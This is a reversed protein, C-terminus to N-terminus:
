SHIAQAAASMKLPCHLRKRGTLCTCFVTIMRVALLLDAISVFLYHNQMRRQCPPQPLLVTQRIHIGNRGLSIPRVLRLNPNQLKTASQLMAIIPCQERRFQSIKKEFQVVDTVVERVLKAFHGLIRLTVTLIM